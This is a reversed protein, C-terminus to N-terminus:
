RFNKSLICEYVNLIQRFTEEQTYHNKAYRQGCQAIKKSILPNTIVQEIKNALDEINGAEYLYGTEGDQILERTGGSNVGIVICGTLQSEITVRGYAERSGCVLSIDSKCYLKGINSCSGYLFVNDKLGLIDIMEKLENVYDDKGKGVILLQFCAFGRNKLVACAQIAEKQGKHEALTGVQILQVMDQNLLERKFCLERDIVVADYITCITEEKFPMLRKVYDSVAIIKSAQELLYFSKSYDFICYGLNELNERIHWVYPIGIKKAAAAGIYTFVTNCHILDVANDKFLRILKKEAYLNKLLRYKFKIKEWVSNNKAIEYAWDSAPIYTHPIKNQILLSAGSGQYPLVVLISIGAEILQCCLEVLCLFAGSVKNNDSAMFVIKAKATESFCVPYQENYHKMYHKGMEMYLKITIFIQNEFKLKLLVDKIEEHLNPLTAIIVLSNSKYSELDAIEYVPIGFLRDLQNSEESRKSVAFGLVKKRFGYRELRSLLLEGVMGAGYIILTNYKKAQYFLQKELYSKTIM